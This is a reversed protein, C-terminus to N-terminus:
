RLAATANAPQLRCLDDRIFPNLALDAFTGSAFWMSIKLKDMVIQLLLSNHPLAASGGRRQPSLWIKNLSIPSIRHRQQLKALPM